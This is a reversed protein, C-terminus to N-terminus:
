GRDWTPAFQAAKDAALREQRVDLIGLSIANV